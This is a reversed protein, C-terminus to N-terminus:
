NVIVLKQTIEKTAGDLKSKIIMKAYYIGQKLIEGSNTEAKWRIEINRQSNSIDYDIQSVVNGSSGYVLLLIALDENERDHEFSFLTESEIPNPYAISNYIFLTPQELVVFEITTETANNYTDLVKLSASYTGAELAQLPYVITGRTYDDIDSTYFENLNLTEGRFTLTIGEVIGSRSTTMGNEDEVKAILLPSNGVNGGNVFSPDNMYARLLPPSDDLVPDIATGGIVFERSSGGADLNLDQDWAYLSIKGKQYQYSINKPVVFSFSFEGRKVSAEGRFLANTRLQYPYPTGGEGQGKTKFTQKVDFVGVVLNGNFDSKVEGNEEIRGSLLVKELASLTDLGTELENLVIDLEPYVPMMMPDGLLVFNRNISGELGENKTVRIVDGLRLNEGSEKRFINEHFAQNLRFNTSAFVPRSTTLLAIGGGQELLLLEEAGSVQIPNDHRGFECTATIFIPLKNRNTLTEIGAKTLIEEGTWQRENGHGIFIILFAGNKIGTKLAVSAQPSKGSSTEQFADLLVKKINYQAYTTDILESLNEVHSAHINGDGDDGVYIMESRWKGLTNLSTTYYIIKDVMVRAEEKSKTPLRGVGIELTHDGSSMEVWEGEDEELFGYYDDSSYSFIPSLSERSEYTPVFNTNNNIRNKYDYSCDGFLLLYKLRGGNEYVYKVYDRLATIDQRGSSFENYVQQTTAVNISLNDHDRHFQALREAEVRFKPHTIILGTFDTSGRLNQNSNSGFPFPAPINNNDEFVVYEETSIFQSQFIAKSGNVEFQQDFVNVPDTVNWISAESANEIEYRLLEGSNGIWRFDTENNYLGLERQFTLFYFDIFGREGSANGEFGIGLEFSSNGSFIFTEKGQRAKISYTTGPGDPVADIAISGISSGQSSIEFFSNESSQSIACVTISLDSNLGNIQHSFTQSEGSHLREGYWDRGSSILNNEDEEFVIFDDFSTVTTTATGAQNSQSAIRKGNVGDIRLFYYATDSYINKKYEFGDETWLEKDSGIGYFLIYDEQDFMGDNGGEILIANEMLDVPRDEANSQPLVGKFGNGYLQINSPNINNPVGLIDLTNRNIKYIGTETIGLKFWTGESLVSSQALIIQTCLIFALHFLSRM